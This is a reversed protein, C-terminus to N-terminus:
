QPLDILDLCAFVFTFAAMIHLDSPQTKRSKNPLVSHKRYVTVKMINPMKETGGRQNANLDQTTRDWDWELEM